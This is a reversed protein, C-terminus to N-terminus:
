EKEDALIVEDFKCSHAYIKNPAKKIPKWNGKDDTEYGSNQPYIIVYGDSLISYIIGVTGPDLMKIEGTFIVSTGLPLKM